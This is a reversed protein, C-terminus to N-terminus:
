AVGIGMFLVDNLASLQKNYLATNGNLLALLNAGMINSLIIAAIAASDADQRFLHEYKGEEIIAELVLLWGTFIRQLASSFKPNVEIMETALNLLLITPRMGGSSSCCDGPASFMLHLKEKADKGQMMKPLIETTWCDELADITALGLEEKSKFHFYFGGKALGTVELIDSLSTSNYGNKTFLVTAREVILKRTEEGRTKKSM